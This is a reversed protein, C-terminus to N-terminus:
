VRPLYIKGATSASLEIDNDSVLGAKRAAYGLLVGRKKLSQVYSKYYCRIRDRITVFSFDNDDFVLNCQAALDIMQKTLHNNYQKQQVTYNLTSHRLYEDRNALLFQELPPYHKWSFKKKLITRYVVKDRSMEEEINHPRIEVPKHVVRNFSAEVTSSLRIAKRDNVSTDSVLRPRAQQMPPCFINNTMNNSAVDQHHSTCIKTSAAQTAIEAFATLLSADERCFDDVKVGQLDNVSHISSQHSTTQSETSVNTRLM